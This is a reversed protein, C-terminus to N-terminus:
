IIEELSQQQKLLKKKESYQKDYIKKNDKRTERHAAAQDRHAERYAVIQDRHSEKYAAQSERIRDPHAECYATQSEQLTRSPMNCNLTAGLSEVFGREVTHAEHADVCSQRHIMIMEWNEWNGHERIFCYVRLNYLKVKSNQCASKHNNKRARFDTTQGVYIDRITLDRCVIKYFVTKSYDIPNRPM